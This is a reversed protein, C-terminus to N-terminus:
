GRCDGSFRRGRFSSESHSGGQLEGVGLFGAVKKLLVGCWYGTGRHISLAGDM